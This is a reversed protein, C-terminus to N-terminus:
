SPCPVSWGLAADELPLSVVSRATKCIVQGNCVPGVVSWSRGRFLAVDGDVLESPTVPEGFLSTVLGQLSGYPRLIRVAGRKSSYSPFRALYDVGTVEHIVKATFICCDLTGWGFRRSAYATFARRLALQTTM